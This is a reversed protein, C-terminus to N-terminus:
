ELGTGMSTADIKWGDSERVWSFNEELGSATETAMEARFDHIELHVIQRTRTDEIQKRRVDPRVKDLGEFIAVFYQETTMGEIQELTLGIDALSSKAAAYVPTGTAVGQFDRLQKSLASRSSSSLHEWMAAYDRDVAAARFEEFAGRVQDEDSGGCSSLLPLLLISAFIILRPM